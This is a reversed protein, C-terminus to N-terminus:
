QIGIQEYRYVKASYSYWKCIKTYSGCISWFDKQHGYENKYACISGKEIRGLMAGKVTGGIVAKGFNLTQRPISVPRRFANGSSVLESKESVATAKANEYRKRQAEALMIDYSLSKWARSEKDIKDRGGALFDMKDRKEYLKNLIKDTDSIAQRYKRINEVAETYDETPAKIGAKLQYATISRKMKQIISMQKKVSETTNDMKMAQKVKSTESQVSDSVKKTVGKADEMEKKYKSTDAELTVKMKAIEDSM